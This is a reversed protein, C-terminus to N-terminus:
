VVLYEDELTIVKLLKTPQLEDDVEMCLKVLSALEATEFRIRIQGQCPKSLNTSDM